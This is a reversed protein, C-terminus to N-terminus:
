RDAAKIAPHYPKKTITNLGDTLRDMAPIVAAISASNKSFHITAAKYQQLINALDQIIDWDEAFLEYKRLNLSKDATISDIADRYNLAFRMM